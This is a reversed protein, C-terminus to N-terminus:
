LGIKRRIIAGVPVPQDIPFYVKYDNHGEALPQNTQDRMQDTKLTLTKDPLLLEATDKNSLRNRLGVLIRNETSDYALVTGALEHTQITKFNPKTETIREESFYFGTTYGRYSLKKLEDLWHTNVRYTDGDKLCADIAWRYTRTVVAVYYASKMRGEIKLSAIGAKTIEPLYELMCLDKSSLIYSYHPDEELILPENPRTSEVLLYEWRCPHSCDGRNASRKNEAYSLFCRGSYSICMAGHIFLEFELDPADAAIETIEKLNLERALVIRKVGQEQWFRASASNTTNAQTSLHVPIEPAVEKALRLLGPDSIIVGDVGIEKLQHLAQKASSLDQNRAFTNMAAYVLVGKSHAENVGTQLDDFSFESQRARLSLGEVGAYVADAGYLIATRLKELNGAPILLEPRNM